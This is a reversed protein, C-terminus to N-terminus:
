KKIFEPPEVLLVKRVNDIRAGREFHYDTLRHESDWTLVARKGWKMVVTEKTYGGPLAEEHRSLVLTPEIEVGYEAMAYPLKHDIM